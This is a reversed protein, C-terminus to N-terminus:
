ARSSPGPLRRAMRISRWPSRSPRRDARPILDGQWGSVVGIRGDTSSAAGNGRNPVTYCLVGNSQAPMVMSFTAEYEVMGRANSPAFQIDTIVSNHPDKPDLEGSFHGSIVTNGRRSQPM